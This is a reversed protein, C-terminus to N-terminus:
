PKVEPLAVVQLTEGHEALLSRIVGADASIRNDSITTCLIGSIVLEGTNLAVWAPRGSGQTLNNQWSTDEHVIQISTLRTFRRLRLRGDQYQHWAMANPSGVYKVLSADDVIPYRPLEPSPDHDFKLLYCRTPLIYRTVVKASYIKGLQTRWYCTAGLPPVNHDGAIAHTESLLTCPVSYAWGAEHGVNKHETAFTTGTFDYRLLEKNLVATQWDAERTETAPDFVMPTEWICRNAVDAMDALKRVPDVKGYHLDLYMVCPVAGDNRVRNFMRQKDTNHPDVIRYVRPQLKVHRLPRDVHSGTDWRSDGGGPLNLTTRDKASFENSYWFRDTLMASLGYYPWYDAYTCPEIAVEVGRKKLLTILERMGERDGVNLEADFCIFNVRGAIAPRLEILARQAWQKATEGPLRPMTSSGGVYVGTWLGASHRQSCGYTFANWDSAVQADKDEPHQRAYESLQTFTRLQMPSTWNGGPLHFIVREYKQLEAFMAPWDRAPWKGDSTPEATIYWPGRTKGGDGDNMVCIFDQAAFTPLCLLLWLLLSRLANM